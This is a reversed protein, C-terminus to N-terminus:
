GQVRVGADDDRSVEVLEDKDRGDLVEFCNRVQAIEVVRGIDRRELLVGVHVVHVVLLEVVDEDTLRELWLSLELMNMDVSPRSKGILNRVM